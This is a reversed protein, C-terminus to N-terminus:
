EEVALVQDEDTRSYKVGDIEFETTWKLPSILINDGIKVDTVKPGIAHVVGWRAKSTSDESTVFEFGWETKEQFQTIGMHKASDDNFTFIIHNHLAELNNSM